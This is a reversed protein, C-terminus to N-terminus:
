GLKEEQLLEQFCAASYAGHVLNTDPTKPRICPFGQGTAAGSLELAKFKEVCSLKWFDPPGLASEM